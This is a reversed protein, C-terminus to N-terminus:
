FNCWGQGRTQSAALTNHVELTENWSVAPPEYPLDITPDFALVEEKVPDM